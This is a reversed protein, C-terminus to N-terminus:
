ALDWTMRRRPWHVKTSTGAGPSTSERPRRVRVYGGPEDLAYRGPAGSRATEEPGTM